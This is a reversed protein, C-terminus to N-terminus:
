NGKSPEGSYEFKMNPKKLNNLLGMIEACDDEPASILIWKPKPVPMVDFDELYRLDEKKHVTTAMGMEEETFGMGTLDFGEEAVQSLDAVLKGLDWDSLEGTRNDANRYAMIQAHTLDSANVTPVWEWSPDSKALYEAAQYRTDGVVIVNDGDIVIPQRWKFEALSKSLPIVAHANIRPNNPYRKLQSLHKMTPVMGPPVAPAVLGPGSDPSPADAPTPPNGLSLKARSKSKFPTPAKQVKSAPM